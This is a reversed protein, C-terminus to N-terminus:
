QEPKIEISRQRERKRFEEQKRREADLLLDRNRKRIRELERQIENDTLEQPAFDFEVETSGRTGDSALASVRVRNRGKRAPVFGSFSGDPNLQIDDPGSM